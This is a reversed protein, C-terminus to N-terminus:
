IAIEFCNLGTSLIRAREAATLDSDSAQQLQM